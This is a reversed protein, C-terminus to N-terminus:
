RLAVFEDNVNFYCHQQKCGKGCGAAWNKLQIQAETVTEKLEAIPALHWCFSVAAHCGRGRITGFEEAEPWVMGARFQCNEVPWNTISKQKDLFPVFTDIPKGFFNSMLYLHYLHPYNERREWRGVTTISVGLAKAFNSISIGSTKRHHKIRVDMGLLVNVRTLKSYYGTLKCETGDSNLLSDIGGYDFLRSFEILKHLPIDAYRGEWRSIEARECNLRLAVFKQSLESHKRISKLKFVVLNKLM